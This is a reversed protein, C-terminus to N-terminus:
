CNNNTGVAIGPTECSFNPQNVSPNLQRLAIPTNECPPSGLQGAQCPNQDPNNLDKYYYIPDYGYPGNQDLCTNCDAVDGISVPKAPKVVSYGNGPMYGFNKMPKNLAKKAENIKDVVKKTDDKCKKVTMAIYICLGLTALAVVLIVPNWNFKSDSM